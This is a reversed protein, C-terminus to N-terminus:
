RRRGAVLEGRLTAECPTTVISDEAVMVSGLPRWTACRERRTVACASGCSDSSSSRQSVWPLEM